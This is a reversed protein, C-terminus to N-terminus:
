LSHHKMVAHFVDSWHSRLLNDAKGSLQYVTGYEPIHPCDDCLRKLMEVETNRYVIADM